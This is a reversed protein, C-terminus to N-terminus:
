RKYASIAMLKNFLQQEEANALLKEANGFLFDYRNVPLLLVNIETDKNGYAGHDLKLVAIEQKLNQNYLDGFVGQRENASSVAKVLATSAKRQNWFQQNRSIVLLIFLLSYTLLLIWANSVGM